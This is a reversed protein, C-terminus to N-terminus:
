VVAAAITEHCLDISTQDCLSKEVRRVWRREAVALSSYHKLQQIVVRQVMVGPQRILNGINTKPLLCPYSIVPQSSFLPKM